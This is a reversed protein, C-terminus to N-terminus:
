RARFLLLGCRDSGTKRYEVWANRQLCYARKAERRGWKDRIKIAWKTMM